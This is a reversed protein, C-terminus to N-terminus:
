FTDLTRVVFVFIFFNDDSFKNPICPASSAPETSFKPAMVTLKRGTAIHIEAPRVGKPFLSNGVLGKEASLLDTCFKRIYWDVFKGILIHLIM